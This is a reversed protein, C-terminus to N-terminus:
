RGDHEGGNRERTNTGAPTVALTLVREPDIGIEAALLLETAELVAPLEAAAAPVSLVIKGGAVVKWTLQGEDVDFIIRSVGAEIPGSTGATFLLSRIQESLM